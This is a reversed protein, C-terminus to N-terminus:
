VEAHRFCSVLHDNVLGISQMYAYVIVPGVFRFGRGRLNNSIRQALPTEAPIEAMTEFRNVIPRGDVFGQCTTVPRDVRDHNRLVSALPFGRGDLRIRVVISRQFFARQRAPIAAPRDNKAEEDVVGLRQRAVREAAHPQDCRAGAAVLTNGAAACQGAAAVVVSGVAAELVRAM